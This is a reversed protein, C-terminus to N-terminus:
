SLLKSRKYALAYICVGKFLNKSRLSEYSGETRKNCVAASLIGDGQRM